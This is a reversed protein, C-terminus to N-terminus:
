RLILYAVLVLVVLGVLLAVSVRSTRWASGPGIPTPSSALRAIESSEALAAPEQDGAATTRPSAPLEGTGVVAMADDYLRRVEPPMSEPSDYTAGGVTIRGSAPSGSAAASAVAGTEVAKEFAARVTEPLEEVSGYEKGNFVIKRRVTVNVKM